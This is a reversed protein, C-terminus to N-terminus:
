LLLRSVALYFRGAATLTDVDPIRLQSTSWFIHGDIQFAEAVMGAACGDVRVVHQEQRPLVLIEVVEHLRENVLLLGILLLCLALCLASLSPRWGPQNIRWSYFELWDM